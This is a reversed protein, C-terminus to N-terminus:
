LLGLMENTRAFAGFYQIAAADYAEAAAKASAFRGLHIGRYNVRIRARWVGDAVQSVGKFGTSNDQRLARGACNEQTTAPRLNLIANNSKILDKHDVQPLWVGHEYLWALQHLNYSRGEIEVSLYGKKSPTGVVAGLPARSGRTVKWTFVGTLPDYHLLEKLRAQTIM